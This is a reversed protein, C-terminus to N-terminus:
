TALGAMPFSPHYKEMIKKLKDNDIKAVNYAKKTSCRHQRAVRVAFAKKMVSQLVALGTANRDVGFLTRFNKGEQDSLKALYKAVVAEVTEIPILIPQFRTLEDHQKFDLLSNVLGQGSLLLGYHAKSKSKFLELNKDALHLIDSMRHSMRDRNDELTNQTLALFRKVHFYYDFAGAAMVLSKYFAEDVLEPAVGWVGHECDYLRLAARHEVSLEDSSSKLSTYERTDLRAVLAFDPIARAKAADQLVALDLDRQAQKTQLPTVTVPMGYDTRLTMSLIDLYHMASLNQTQIIGMVIQWSLLDKDYEIREGNIRIQSFFTLQNAVFHRSVLSIDDSLLTTIEAVTCPVTAKPRANHVYLHMKGTKLQRVRFLQQLSTLVGPTFQSNVFYAVVSDFHKEVFSVGASISPSYILLDYKVWETDVQKLDSGPVGANYVKILADPKRESIFTALTETFKRTSSCCAVKEGGMLLDLVKTAAAFILSAEGVICSLPGESVALTAERNSARVHRNRVWTATVGNKNSLYDVVNKMFTTDMSADVLYTSKAHTLHLELLASNASRKSMHSSNFHLFVSVAEDIVVIDFNRVVIRHLSDLCVVIKSDNILGITDQYNAIGLHQFDEHLKAALSRSHTILLVKSEDNCLNELTHRLAVTKGIGMGALVCVLAGEPLDRMQPEDYDQVWEISAQQAHMGGPVFADYQHTLGWDDSYLMTVGKSTIVDDCAEDHCLVEASRKDKALMIYLQNNAHCRGAYPCAAGVRKDIRLRFNHERETVAAIRLVRGGFVEQVRKWGNLLKEFDAHASVPLATSAAPTVRKRTQPGCVELTAGEETFPKPLHPLDRTLLSSYIGILHDVIDPSSGMMPRLANDRGVKVMRLTRFSRFQTYVAKDVVCKGSAILCPWEAAANEILAILSETISRHTLVSAVRVECCLHVSTKVATTAQALHCNVGPVAEFEFDFMQRLHVSLVTLMQAAVEESTYETDPRDLDFYLKCNDDHRELVEYLASGHRAELYALGESPSAYRRFSKGGSGNDRSLLFTEATWPDPINAKYHVWTSKDDSRGPTM